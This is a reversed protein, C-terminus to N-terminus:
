DIVDFCEKNVYYDDIRYCDDDQSYEDIEFIEDKGYYKDLFQLTYSRCGNWYNKALNCLDIHDKIKLRITDKLVKVEMKLASDIRAYSGIDESLYGDVENEYDRYEEDLRYIIGDVEIKKPLNDGKEIKELLEILKM